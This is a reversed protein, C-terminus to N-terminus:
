RLKKIMKVLTMCLKGVQTIKLNTGQDKNACSIIKRRNLCVVEKLLRLDNVIHVTAGTDIILESNSDVNLILDHLGAALISDGNDMEMCMNATANNIVMNNEHIPVNIWFMKDNDEIKMKKYKQSIKKKSSRQKKTVDKPFYKKNGFSNAKCTAAYHTM